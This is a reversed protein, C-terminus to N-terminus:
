SIIDLKELKLQRILSYRKLKKRLGRVNLTGVNLPTEIKMINNNNNNNNTTDM